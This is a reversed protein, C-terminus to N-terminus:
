ASQSSRLFAFRYPSGVHIHKNHTPPDSESLSALGASISALGAINHNPSSALLLYPNSSPGGKAKVPRLTEGLLRAHSDSFSNGM